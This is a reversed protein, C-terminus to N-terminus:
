KKAFRLKEIKYTGQADQKIYINAEFVGKASRYEGLAYISGGSNGTHVIHFSGPPYSDFFKQLVFKAQGAAYSGRQNYLTLETRANLYPTLCNSSGQSICNGIRELVVNVDAREYSLLHFFSLSLFFFITFRIRM